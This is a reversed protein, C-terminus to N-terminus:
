FVPLRDHKRLFMKRSASQLLDTISSGVAHEGIGWVMRMEYNRTNELNWRDLEQALRKLACESQPETTEPMVVLFEDGGYRYVTDSGRFTSRLLQGAAFLLEDGAQNGFSENISKFNQLDLMVVTLPTGLRNARVVEKALMQDLARRNYLQTLPDVLSLGELRENFVLERILSRRTANLERKQAIVYVNFLMVLCILGFFLQPLYRADTHLIPAKWALNPAVLATFGAVVVIMILLTISWLQFDRGGIAQIQQQIQESRLALPESADSAKAQHNGNGNTRAM